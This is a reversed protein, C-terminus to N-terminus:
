SHKVGKAMRDVESGALLFGGVGYVWSSSPKFFEPAGGVQQMSGLRGDAYIYSLLGKWAKEVVPRYTKSDLIGENVGYALGYTIFASGTNEPVKYYDPDLLGSRWLGDGGQLSALKASMEKLQEVYKERRPDNKPLYQLVRVLGGMVWGNGRSWFMKKGNSETKHLYSADRFFLHEESDYLLSSTKDWERDVYDLYKKDQTITYMRVWVPPAMFLADCWWWPIRGKPDKELPYLEDLEERTNAIMQSDHKLMYMETYMQGISQDDANPLHSRLKWQFKEGVGMMADRYKPDGTAQSAAMFGAYLASWTWENGFYPQSRQLEWDAVKRMAAEVAKPKIKPSLNKALPGPHDPVDGIHQAIEMDIYKQQEPTPQQAWSVVSISCTSLFLVCGAVCKLCPRVKM